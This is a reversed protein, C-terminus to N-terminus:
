KQSHQPVAAATLEKLTDCASSLLVPPHEGASQRIPVTSTLTASPLFTLRSLIERILAQPRPPGPSYGQKDRRPRRRSVRANRSIAASVHEKSLNTNISPPHAPPTQTTQADKQFVRTPRRSTTAQTKAQATTPPPNAQPWYLHRSGPPMHGRPSLRLTQDQSLVFAPPASLVHLDFAHKIKPNPM